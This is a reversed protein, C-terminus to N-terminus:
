QIYGLARLQERVRPDIEGEAAEGLELDFLEAYSAIAPPLELRTGDASRPWLEDPIFGPLDDALPRGLQALLVPVIDEQELDPGEIGAPLRPGAMVYIGEPGHHLRYGEGPRSGHDSLVVVLTDEDASALLQGLWRDAAAYVEALPGFVGPQGGERHALLQAVIVHHIRDTAGLVITVDSWAGQGLLARAAEVRGAEVGLNWGVHTQLLADSDQYDLFDISDAAPTLWPQESQITALVELPAALGEVTLFVLPGVVFRSPGAPASLNRLRTLAPGDPHDFRLWPSWEGPAVGIVAGPPGLTMRGTAPDLAVCIEAAPEVLAALYRAASARLDSSLITLLIGPSTNRFPSSAPDFRDAPLSVRDAAGCGESEGPAVPWPGRGAQQGAFTGFSWAQDSGPVIGPAAMGATRFGARDRVPYTGPLNMILPTGAGGALALMDSLIPLRTPPSGWSAVGHREPLTGTMINTWAVPSVFRAVDRNHLVGAVGSEIVRELNPMRGAEILPDLYGWDAGDLGILMIEPAVAPDAADLEAAEPPAAEGPADQPARAPWVGAHVATVPPAWGWWTSLLALAASVALTAGALPMPRPSRVRRALAFLILGVVPVQFFVARGVAHEMGPVRQQHVHLLLVAAVALVVTVVTPQLRSALPALRALAALAGTALAHVVTGALAGTAWLLLPYYGLSLAPDLTRVAILLELVLLSSVLAATLVAPALGPRTLEPPAM